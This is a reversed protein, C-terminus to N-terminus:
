CYGVGWRDILELSDKRFEPISVEKDLLVSESREGIIVLNGTLPDLFLVPDSKRTNKM